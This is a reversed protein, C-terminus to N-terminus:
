TKLEFYKRMWWKRREGEGLQALTKLLKIENAFKIKKAHLLGKTEKGKGDPLLHSFLGSSPSSRFRM